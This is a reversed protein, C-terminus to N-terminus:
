KLKPKAQIPLQIFSGDAYILDDEPRERYRVSPEEGEKAPVIQRSDWEFITDAGASVVRYHKRDDSATYAYPHNWMDKTPLKKLYAPVLVAELAAYDGTPYKEEHDIAYAELATAVTRIDSMTRRWPRKKEFEETAETMAREIKPGLNDMGAQMGEEVLRPTMEVMKKGAASTYFTTIDVLEQENFHKAYIRVYAEHMEAGLDITAARTRFNAFVEKAETIDDPDGGKAAASELVQKEIQSFMVDLSARLNADINMAAMLKEILQRQRPSPNPETAFLPAAITVILSALLLRPVQFRRHFANEPAM